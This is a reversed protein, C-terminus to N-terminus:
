TKATYTKSGHHHNNLWFMYSHFIYYYFHANKPVILSKFIMSLACFSCNAISDNTLSLYPSKNNCLFLLEYQINIWGIKAHSLSCLPMPLLPLL